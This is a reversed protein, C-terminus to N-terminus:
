ILKTYFCIVWPILKLIFNWISKHYNRKQIGSPLKQCMLSQLKCWYITYYDIYYKQCAHRPCIFLDSPFVDKTYRNIYNLILLKLTTKSSQTAPLKTKVNEKEKKKFVSSNSKTALEFLLFETMIFLLPILM